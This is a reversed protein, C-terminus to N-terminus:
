YVASFYRDCRLISCIKNGTVKCLRDEVSRSKYFSTIEDSLEFSKEHRGIQTVASMADTEAMGIQTVASMADTAVMGIQTVASMADTEAMGIQTVASMADTEAM